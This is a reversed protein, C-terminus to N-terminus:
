RQIRASCAFSHLAPPHPLFFGIPLGKAGATAIHNRCRIRATSFYELTDRSALAKLPASQSRHSSRITVGQLEVVNQRPSDTKSMGAFVVLVTSKSFGRISPKVLSFLKRTKSGWQCKVLCTRRAKRHVGGSGRPRRLLGRSDDVRYSIGTACRLGRLPSELRGNKICPTM